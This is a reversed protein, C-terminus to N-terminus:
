RDGHWRGDLEFYQKLPNANVSDELLSKLIETRGTMAAFEICSMQGVKLRVSM